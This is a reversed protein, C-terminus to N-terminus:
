LRPEKVLEDILRMGMEAHRAQLALYTKIAYLKRVQSPANKSRLKPPWENQKGTISDHCNHCLFVGIDPINARGFVHHYEKISYPNNEPCLACQRIIM